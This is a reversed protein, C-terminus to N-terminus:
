TEPPGSTIVVECWVIKMRSSVQRYGWRSSLAEIVAYGRGHESEPGAQRPRPEHPNQDWVEILLRQRDARLRLGVLYSRDLVWSAKLANTLLKSVLLEVDDSLHGLQWERLLHRTHLRGCSAATPLAGLELLSVREPSRIAAGAGPTDSQRPSDATAMVTLQDPEAARASSAGPRATHHPPSRNTRYGHRAGLPAQM